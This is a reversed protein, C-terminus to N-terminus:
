PRWPVPDGHDQWEPFPRGKLFAEAAERILARYAVEGEAKDQYLELAESLQFFEVAVDALDPCKPRAPPAAFADHESGAWYIANALRMPDGEGRVIREALERIEALGDARVERAPSESDPHQLDAM